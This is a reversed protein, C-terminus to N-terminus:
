FVLDSLNSGLDIFSRSRQYDYLKMYESLQSCRGIKIDYVVSIESFDLTKVKNWVFFFPALNQGQRLIPRPWGMTMMQVFKTASM